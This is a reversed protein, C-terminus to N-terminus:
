KRKSPPPARAKWTGPCSERSPWITSLRISFARENEGGPPVTRTM